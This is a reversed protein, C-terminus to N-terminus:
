HIAAYEREGFIATGVRVMTTGEEIAVEFDNTMGMSLEFPEADFLGRAALREAEGRLQRFFPRTKEADDFFPPLTMLGIFKLRECDHLVEALESLRDPSAGSRGDDTLNVQALVALTERGEEACIRELRQALEISDVTHIVDFFQVAKRAKNSQLPGILHWEAFDRGLEVIKSEGEQVKNEGFSMAGAAVAERIAEAPHTKSVAILKIGSEVRGARSAAAALRARINEINAAITM